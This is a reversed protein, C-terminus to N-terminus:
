PAAVETRVVVAGHDVVERDVFVALPDALDGRGAVRRAQPFVDPEGHHGDLVALDADFELDLARIRRDRGDHGVPDEKLGLVGFLFQAGRTGTLPGLAPPLLHRPCPTWLRAGAAVLSSPM